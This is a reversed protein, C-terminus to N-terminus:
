CYGYLSSVQCLLVITLVGLGVYASFYSCSHIILLFVVILLMHLMIWQISASSICILKQGSGEFTYM